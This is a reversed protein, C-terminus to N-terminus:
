TGEHKKFRHKIGEIQKKGERKETQKRSKRSETKINKREQKKKHEIDNM